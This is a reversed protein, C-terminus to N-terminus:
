PIIKAQRFREFTRWWSEKEDMEITDPGWVGQMRKVSMERDFDFLGMIFNQFGAAVPGIQRGTQLGHKRELEEWEALHEQVYQGPQPASGGDAPPPTGKLGFFECIVPWKRSWSSPAARDAVNFRKGGSVDAHLSAWVAFKAITDQNCENSRIRWSKENGPFACAAGPGEVARFLALYTALTQALCYVNNNPVFGIINDPILDCWAWAKGRSLDQLVAVQAYYFMQSLHPEPIPPLDEHLPLADRFPFDGLLHVGYTKTGTPLVVFRLNPCLHQAATVARTLLDVNISIEKQPDPDM